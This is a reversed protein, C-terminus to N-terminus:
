KKRRRDAESKKEDRKKKMSEYLARQALNANIAQVYGMSANYAAKSIKNDALGKVLAEEAQVAHETTWQDLPLASGLIPRPISKVDPIEIQAREVMEDHLDWPDEGKPGEVREEYENLFSQIRRAAGRDQKFGPISFEPDTAGLMRKLSTRARVRASNKFGKDKVSAILNNLGTAHSIELKGGASLVVMRNKIATIEAIKKDGEPMASIEYISDQLELLTPGETEVEHLGVIMAGLAKAQDGDIERAKRAADIEALTPLQTREVEGIAVAQIRNAINGYVGEQKETKGREADRDEKDQRAQISRMETALRQRVAEKELEGLQAWNVANRKNEKSTGGTFKGIRMQDYVSMLNEKETTNVWASIGNKAIDGAFKIKLKAGADAKIIHRSIALDIAFLGTSMAMDSDVPNGGFTGRVLSDLNTHLDGLMESYARKTATGQISIQSKGSLLAWKSDFAKRVKPHMTKTIDNYIETARGGFGSLADIGPQSKLETELGSLRLQANVTAATLESAQQSEELNVGIKGMQQFFNLGAQAVQNDIPVMPPAPVGTTGPISAQRTYTPIVAM